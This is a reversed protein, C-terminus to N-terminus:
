PGLAATRLGHLNGQKGTITFNGYGSFLLQLWSWFWDIDWFIFLGKDFQIFLKAIEIVTGSSKITTFFVIHNKMLGPAKGGIFIGSIGPDNDFGALLILIAIFNFATQTKIFRAKQM